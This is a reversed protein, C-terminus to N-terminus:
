EEVLLTRVPHSFIWEKSKAVFGHQSRGPQTSTRVSAALSPFPSLSPFRLRNGTKKEEIMRDEIRSSGGGRKEGEGNRGKGTENM